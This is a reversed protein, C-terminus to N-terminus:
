LSKKVDNLFTALLKFFGSANRGRSDVVPIM